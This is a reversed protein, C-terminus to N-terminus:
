IQRIVRLTYLGGLIDSLGCTKFDYFGIMFFLVSINMSARKIRSHEGARLLCTFDQM